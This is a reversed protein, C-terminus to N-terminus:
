GANVAVRIALIRSQRCLTEGAVGRVILARRIGVVCRAAEALGARLTVCRCDPFLSHEIVSKGTEGQRTRMDTRIASLTVHISLVGSCIGIAGATM